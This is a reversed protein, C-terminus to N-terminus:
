KIKTASPATQKAETASGLAPVQKLAKEDSQVNEVQATSAAKNGKVNNSQQIAAKTETKIITKSNTTSSSSLGAEPTNNQGFCLISIGVFITILAYKMAM